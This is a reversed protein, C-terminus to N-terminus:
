AEMQFPANQTTNSFTALPLRLPPCGKHRAGAEGEEREAKKGLDQGGPGRELAHEPRHEGTFNPHLSPISCDHDPSHNDRPLSLCISWGEDRSTLATFWMEKGAADAWPGRESGRQRERRLPATM